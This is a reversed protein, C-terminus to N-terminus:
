TMVLLVTTKVKNSILNNELFTFYNKVVFSFLIYIQKKKFHFLSNKIFSSVTHTCVNRGGGDCLVFSSTLESIMLAKCTPMSIHYPLVVARM